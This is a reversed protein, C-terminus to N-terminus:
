VYGRLYVRNITKGLIEAYKEAQEKSVATLNKNICNDSANFKQLFIKEGGILDNAMKNIDELSHFEKVLTTRLEYLIKNKKLINLSKVVMEANANCVGATKTYKEFCNKIDMAVYDILKQDILKQLMEPNTGNTDLKVLYGIEKVKSLFEPLDQWITPEGGSICVADLMKRRAILYDLVEDESIEEARNLALDGNHCFPCKYNCGGTFVVATVKGEYDVLSLKELGCIKM